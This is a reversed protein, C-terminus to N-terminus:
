KVEASVFEFGLDEIGRRVAAIDGNYDIDISNLEISIIEANLSKLANTVRAICHPCGM